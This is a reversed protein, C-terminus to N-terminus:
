HTTLGRSLMIVAVELTGSCRDRRIQLVFIKEAKGALCKGAYELTAFKALIM